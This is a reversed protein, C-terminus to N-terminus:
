RESLLEKIRPSYPLVEICVKRGEKNRKKIIEKLCFLVLALCGLKLSLHFSLPQQSDGRKKKKNRQRGKEGKKLWKEHWDIVDGRRPGSVVTM